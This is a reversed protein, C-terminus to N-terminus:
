FDCKSFLQYLLSRSGIKLTINESDVHEPTDLILFRKQACKQTLLDRQIIHVMFPNFHSGADKCNNGLEGKMHVHFGHPGQKLGRIVGKVLVPGNPDSQELSIQGTVGSEGGSTLFVTATMPKPFGFGNPFFPRRNQSTVAPFALPRGYFRRYHIAHANFPLLLLVL